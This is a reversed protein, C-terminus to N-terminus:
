VITLIRCQGNTFIINIECSAGKLLSVSSVNNVLVTEYDGIKFNTPLTITQESSNYVVITCENQGSYSFSLYTDSDYNDNNIVVNTIKTTLNIGGELNTVTRSKTLSFTLAYDVDTINENLSSGDYSIDSASLKGKINNIFEQKDAETFYDVGKVPTLGDKGDVGDKGDEGKPGQQGVFDGNDIFAQLRTGDGLEVDTADVLAFQGNNKQKIKDILEIPM